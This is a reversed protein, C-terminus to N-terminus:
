ITGNKIQRVIEDAADEILDLAFDFDGEDGYYPDPITAQNKHETLYDAMLRIRAKAEDDPALRRLDAMNQEDMGMVIDFDAFDSQRVQRARHTLDYGRKRGRARMRHDPLQGAHWDGIGASDITIDLGAEIAKQRFVGDAAPSRCINGLCVFLISKVPKINQNM